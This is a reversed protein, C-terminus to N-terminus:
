LDDLDSGISPGGSSFIGAVASADWVDDDDTSDGLPESTDSDSLATTANTDLTGDDDASDDITEDEVAMPLEGDEGPIQRGHREAFGPHLRWWEWMCLMIKESKGRGIKELGEFCHIGDGNSRAYEDIQRFTGTGENDRLIKCVGPPIGIQETTAAWFQEERAVPELRHAAPQRPRTSPSATPAPASPKSEAPPASPTVAAAPLMATPAAVAVAEAEEVIPNAADPRQTKAARTVTPAASKKAAPKPKPKATAAPKSAKPKAAKARATGGFDPLNLEGLAQQQMLSAMKVGATDRARRAAPLQSKLRKAEALLAEIRAVMFSATTFEATALELPTAAHAQMPVLAATDHGNGNTNESTM